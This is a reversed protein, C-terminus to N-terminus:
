LKVSSCFPVKWTSVSPSRNLTVMRQFFYIIISYIRGGPNIAERRANDICVPVWLFITLLASLRGTRSSQEIFSPVAAHATAM